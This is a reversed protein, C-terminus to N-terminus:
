EDDRGGPAAATATTDALAHRLRELIVIVDPKRPSGFVHHAEPYHAALRQLADYQNWLSMLCVDISEVIQEDTPRTM